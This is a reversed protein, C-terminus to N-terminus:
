KIEWINFGRDMLIMQVMVGVSEDCENVIKKIRYSLPKLCETPLRAHPPKDGGELRIILDVLDFYTNEPDRFVSTADWQYVHLTENPEDWYYARRQNFKTM